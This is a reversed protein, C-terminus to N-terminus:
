LLEYIQPHQLLALTVNTWAQTYLQRFQADTPMDIALFAHKVLPETEVKDHYVTM